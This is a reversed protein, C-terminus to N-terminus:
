YIIEEVKSVVYSIQERKLITHIPLNVVEQGAKEAYPYSGLAYPQYDALNPLAYNFTKGVEIGRDRMQQVFDIADRDEVRISYLSYSAGKILSAPTLGPIGQLNETYLDALVRRRTLILPAKRLQALGMRAQFDAYRIVYDGPILSQISQEDEEVLRLLASLNYFTEKSLKMRWTLGYIWNRSRLYHIALLIWRKLWQKPPLSNMAGDRYTKLDEYLEADNVVLAGGRLTFLPKGPGFSFLGVDGELGGAEGIAGPFAQAADQLICIQKGDVMNRIEATKAPYGFMHTAVIVRTRPTIASRLADLNMSYDALDIDVFVPINGTSLVVDPMIRCTYAPLVIEAGRVQLTKLLAFFGAHGYTFALGYRAGAETAVAEEFERRSGGPRLVSLLDSFDLDPRLRRIM